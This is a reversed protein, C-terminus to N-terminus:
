EGRCNLPNQSGIKWLEANYAFSNTMLIAQADFNASGIDLTNLNTIWEANDFFYMDALFSITFEKTRQYFNSQAQCASINRFFSRIQNALIGHIALPITKSFDKGAHKGSGSCFASFRM